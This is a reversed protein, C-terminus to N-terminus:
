GEEGWKSMPMMEYRREALREGDRALHCAVAMRLRDKVEVRVFLHSLGSEGLSEVEFTAPAGIGCLRCVLIKGNMCLRAVRGSRSLEVAAPTYAHWIAVGSEALVAEDQIVAVSRDDTLMVGRKARVLKDSTASMDVIAYVRDESSRMEVIPASAAPNQDPVSEDTPDIVLTNQGEARRRLLMPIAENGGTEAFFREGACELLFSGADLDGGRDNNKGGHLCLMMGEGRWDARMMALGARRYVADLPLEFTTSDSVPTYFLIDYPTIAKKGAILERHRLWAYVPNGTKQTFYSLISTDSPEAACNGYNWVGSATEAYTALMASATFGPMSAFGYDSGCATELMRVVLAAGTIATEWARMGEAYGGDPAFGEMLPELNRLVARLIKLTTEPYLDALAFASALFGANIAASQASGTDWMNGRGAYAEAAPRLARRLIAREIVAKRAESWMHHCWDYAVSMGFAVTSVTAMSSDHWNPLAAIEEALVATCECYRKDGTVRYLMALSVLQESARILTATNEAGDGSSFVIPEADRCLAKLADVRAHLVPDNKAAKRLSMLEDYSALLRGRGPSKIKKRLDSVIEEGTPRYFTMDAVLQRIQGADRVRDFVSKRNSFVILGTPDTFIQRWHFFDRVFEAPFFLVGDREAPSFPISQRVGDVQMMAIRAEFTYKKRRYTFSLTHARNDAVATHAMVTAIAGMPIWLVGNEEFPRIHAGDFSLSVRKRNVIAFEGGKAFAAAGKLEPMSEYLPAAMERNVFLTDLYLVTDVRNSQGGRICDLDISHIHDWGLPSRWARVFPLEVRYDNWGDRPIPLTVEYGSSSDGQESSDFFLSFSGGAGNVAFLSFTLYRYPTLDARRMSLSVRTREAFRWAGSIHASKKHVTDPKMGAQELAEYANVDFLCLREDAASSEVCIKLNKKM